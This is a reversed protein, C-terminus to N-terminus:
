PHEEGYVSITVTKVPKAKTKKWSDLAAVACQLSRAHPSRQPKKSILTELNSESESAAATELGWKFLV